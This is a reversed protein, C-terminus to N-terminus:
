IEYATKQKFFFFAVVLRHPPQPVVVLGRRRIVMPSHALFGANQSVPRHAGDGDPNHVLTAPYLGIAISALLYLVIFTVLM